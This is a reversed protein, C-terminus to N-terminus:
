VHITLLDRAVQVPGDFAERIDAVVEDILHPGMIEVPMHQAALRRVIPNTSDWHGIHTAILHKVGADRAIRGLERPSTHSFTGIGNKARYEIAAEPFTAEHILLDAGSAFEVMQPLAKTDGSFVVTAGDSELKLAYCQCIDPPIHDVSMASVKLRDDEFIAGPSILRTEPRLVEMNGQRQPYKARARIDVDFAGGEFLHGVLGETGEPGHIVPAGRRGSMWSGIVFVPLDATHDFHLHTLFLAEVSLPDIGAAIMNRTAGTGIDILYTKERIQAAISTHARDPDILAAGTGLLTIKVASGLIHIQENFASIICM